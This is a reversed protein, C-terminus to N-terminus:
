RRRRKKAPRRKPKARKPRKTKTSHHSPPQKKRGPADEFPVLPLPDIQDLSLHKQDPPVADLDVLGVVTFETGVDWGSLPTALLESAQSENIVVTPCDICFWGMDSSVAFSDADRKGQGTAVLYLKHVRHLSAGCAPCPGPHEAFTRYFCKRPLTFDIATDQQESEMKATGEITNGLCQYM